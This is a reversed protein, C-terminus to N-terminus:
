LLPPFFLFRKVIFTVTSVDNEMKQHVWRFVELNQCNNQMGSNYSMPQRGKLLIMQRPSDRPIVRLTGSIHSVFYINHDALCLSLKKRGKRGRTGGGIQNTARRERESETERRERERKEERESM